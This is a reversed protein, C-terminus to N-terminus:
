KLEYPAAAAKAVDWNAVCAEELMAIGLGECKERMGEFISWFEAEDKAYVMKWSEAVVVEGVSTRIMQMDDDLPPMFRTALARYNLTGKDKYAEIPLQYGSYARWEEYVKSSTNALATTSWEGQRVPEGYSTLTDNTWGWASWFQGNELVEGSELKHSGTTRMNEFGELSVLKGDVVDWMEGQPGNYMTLMTHEDYMENIFALCADLKETSASVAIISTNSGGIVQPGNVVPKIWDNVLPMYGNAPDDDGHASTYSDVYNGTMAVMISGLKYKAQTANYTQTVSDPDLVGAQQCDFLFKVGKIYTSDKDIQKRLEDNPIDYEMLSNGINMQVGSIDAIKGTASMQNSGDWEPFAALGWTKTGDELEPMYEMMAKMLAILDDTNNVEPCGLAKYVDWRVQCAYTGTDIPMSNYTGIELPVCYLGEGQCIVNRAFDIAQPWKETLNPFKDTYDSLDMVLGTQVVPFFSNNVYYRGIDPLDGGALLAQTKDNDWPIVNVRVGIKKELYDNMFGDMSSRNNQMGYYDITVVEKAEDAFATFSAMMPILMLCVVVLAVSKKLTKSM